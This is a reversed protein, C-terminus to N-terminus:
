SMRKNVFKYIQVILVTCREEVTAYSYNPPRIFTMKM